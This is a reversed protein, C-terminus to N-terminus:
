YDGYVRLLFDQIREKVVYDEEYNNILVAFGLERGSFASLTGAYARVKEMSGSKAYLNGELNSRRGFSRMTGNRGAGPLVNLIYKRQEEDNAMYHLLQTVQASSVATFRSLGSGDYAFLSYSSECIPKLHAHIAELGADISAEGKQAGIQMLLAEAFLNDSKVLTHALLESLPPSNTSTIKKLTSTERYTEREITIGGEVPIGSDELSKELHYAAFLLPDPLSGKIEYDERGVPLTGRIHRVPDLPSGFIFARDRNITSTVVENKLQLGPVEPHVRTVKTQRDPELPTDFFVSYSNDNINVGSVATGYYNGMDEWIRTRPLANGKVFSGNAVVKGQIEEIGFAKIEAVWRAMLADFDDEFHKSGLSPDGAGIIYVNGTLVGDTLKGDYCILTRFRFDGGLNKLAASATFLKWVSAPCLLKSAEHSILDEGTNVDIVSVSWSANKASGDNVMKSLSNQGDAVTCAFIFIAFHILKSTSVM